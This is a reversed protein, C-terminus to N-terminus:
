PDDSVTSPVPQHEHFKMHFSIRDMFYIYVARFNTNKVINLALRDGM